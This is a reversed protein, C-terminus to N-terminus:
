LDPRDALLIRSMRASAVGFCAAFLAAQRPLLQIHCTM